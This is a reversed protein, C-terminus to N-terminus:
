QIHCSLIEEEEQSKRGSVPLSFLLLDFFFFFKEIKPIHRSSIRRSYQRGLSTDALKNSRQQLKVTCIQCTRPMYSQSNWITTFQAVSAVAWVSPTRIYTPSRDVMEVPTNSAFTNFGCFILKINYFFAIYIYSVIPADRKHHLLNNSQCYKPALWSKMGIRSIVHKETVRPWSALM